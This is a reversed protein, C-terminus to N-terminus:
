VYTVPIIFLRSVPRSLLISIFQYGLQSAVHWAALRVSFILVSRTEFLVVV